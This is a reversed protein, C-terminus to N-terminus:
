PSAVINGDREGELRFWVPILYNRQQYTLVQGTVSLTVRDGQSQLAREIHELNMCPVLTFAPDQTGAGPADPGNDTVFVLSSGSGRQVRGRRATLTIGERMLSAVRPVNEASLGPLATPMRREDGAGMEQLLANV